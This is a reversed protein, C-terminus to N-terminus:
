RLEWIWIEGVERLKNGLHEHVLPIAEAERSDSYFYRAGQGLWTKFKEPDFNTAGFTWGFHRLHFLSIHPSLDNAFVIRADAPTATRLEELNSLLGKPMGKENWRPYARLGATVPLVIILALALNRGWTAKVMLAWRIGIAVLLFIGPLFPFLYYDHISTIMNIEFMFYAGVGAAYLAFPLSLGSKWHKDKGISWFAILLFPVAAYNVLLEPLIAILNRWISFLIDPVDEPTSDLIGKVVGNGTWQPIVWAYWWLAPALIVLGALALAAKRVFGKGRERILAVLLGGMPVTMLVVFPLKTATALSLCAFSALISATGLAGSGSRYWQMFFAIGWVAAMLSFNDPLPNINYYFLVPSFTWAWAAFLAVTKDRFILDCARFFGLMTVIGLLWSLLRLVVAHDGFLRIFWAFSWQMVPFEMRKLGDQWELSYVHPDSIPYGKEAFLVINSATECQRWAHIGQLPKNLIPLHMLLSLVPVVVWIWLRYRRDIHAKLKDMEIAM